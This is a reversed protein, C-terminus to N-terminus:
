TFWALLLTALWDKKDNESSTNSKINLSSKNANGDVACGCNICIVANDNIEKGCNRCYM